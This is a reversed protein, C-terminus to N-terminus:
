TGATNRNVPPVRSGFSSLRNRLTPRAALNGAGVTPVAQRHQTPRIPRPAGFRTNNSGYGRFLSSAKYRLARTVQGQVATPRRRAANETWSLQPGAAIYDITQQWLRRIQGPATQDLSLEVHQVTPARGPQLVFTHTRAHFRTRPGSQWRETVAVGSQGSSRFRQETGGANRPRGPVPM